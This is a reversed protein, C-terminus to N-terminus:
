GEQTIAKAGDTLMKRLKLLEPYNMSLSGSFVEREVKFLQESIDAYLYSWIGMKCEDVVYKLPPEGSIHLRRYWHRYEVTIRDRGTDEGKFEPDITVRIDDKQLM